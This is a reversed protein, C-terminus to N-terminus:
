PIPLGTPFDQAASKLHKIDKGIALSINNLYKDMAQKWSKSQNAYEYIRTTTQNWKIKRGDFLKM